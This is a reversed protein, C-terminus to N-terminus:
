HSCDRRRQDACALLVRELDGTSGRLAMQNSVQAAFM